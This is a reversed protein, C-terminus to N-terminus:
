RTQAAAEMSAPTTPASMSIMRVIIERLVLQASVFITTLGMKVIEM